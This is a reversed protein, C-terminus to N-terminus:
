ELMVEGIAISNCRCLNLCSKSDHGILLAVDKSLKGEPQYLVFCTELFSYAVDILLVISAILGSSRYFM